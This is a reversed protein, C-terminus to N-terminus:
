LLFILKYDKKDEDDYILIIELYEYNQSNLSDIIKKIKWYNSHIIIISLEILQDKQKYINPKKPSLEKKNFNQNENLFIYPDFKESINFDKLLEKKHHKLILFVMVQLNKM